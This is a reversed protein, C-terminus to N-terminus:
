LPLMSYRDTSAAGTCVQALASTTATAIIEEIEQLGVATSVECDCGVGKAEVVGASFGSATARAVATGTGNSLGCAMTGPGGTSECFSDAQVVSQAVATAIDRVILNIQAENGAGDCALARVAAGAAAVANTEELIAASSIAVDCEAVADGAQGRTVANGSCGDTSDTSIEGTVTALLQIINEEVARQVDNATFM